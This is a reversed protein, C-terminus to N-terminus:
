VRLVIAYIDLLSMAANLTIQGADRLMIFRISLCVNAILFAFYPIPSIGIKPLLALLVSGGILLLGSLWSMTDQLAYAKGNVYESSTMERIVRNKM